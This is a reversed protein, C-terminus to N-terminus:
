RGPSKATLGSVHEEKRLRKEFLFTGFPLLSAIFAIVVKGFSWKYKIWVLLLFVLYLLFLIGHAWGVYKVPAPMDALYKFPMAIFLLVLLSIGEAMAIQRFRKLTTQEATSM